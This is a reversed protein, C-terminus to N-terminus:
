RPSMSGGRAIKVESYGVGLSNIAYARVQYNKYIQVPLKDAFFDTIEGTGMVLKEGNKIDPIDTKNTVWCFGYETILTGGNNEIKGSCSNYQHWIDDIYTGSGTSLVSLTVTPVAGEEKEDEDKSCGYFSFFLTVVVLIKCINQYNTKM